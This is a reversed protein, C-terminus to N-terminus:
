LMSADGDSVEGDSSGTNLKTVEEYCARCLKKGPVASYDHNQLLMAMDLTIMHKGVNKKKTKGYAHKDFINCCKTHKKEYRDGFQLEHHRCINKISQDFNLIGARMKLISQETDELESLLKINPKLNGHCKENLYQGFSCQEPTSDETTPTGEDDVAKRKKNSAM